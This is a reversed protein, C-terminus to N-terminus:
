SSLYHTTIDRRWHKMEHSVATLAKDYLYGHDQYEIVRRAAFNWRFCHTGSVKEGATRAVNLVDEAYRRYNVRFAGRTKEIVSKLKLYLPKEIMIDGVKGGKERTEVVGKEEGSIADFRFGKLQEMKILTVGESRAGGSLQITAALRHNDDKLLRLVKVPDHFKRDHYGDILLGLDRAESLILHRVSFDYHQGIGHKKVTYQRLAIELKGMAANLKAAYSKTPYYEIKHELYAAIHMSDIREFDKIGWHERLYHGFNNWVSRYTEMSKYSAVCEYYEHTPDKRQTKKAGEVFIAKALEATQYYVSGRM